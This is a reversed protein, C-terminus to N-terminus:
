VNTAFPTLHLYGQMKPHAQLAYIRLQYPLHSKSQKLANCSISTYYLPPQNISHLMTADTHHMRQCLRAKVGECVIVRMERPWCHITSLQPSTQMGARVPTDSPKEDDTRFRQHDFPINLNYMREPSLHQRSSSASSQATLQQPSPSPM